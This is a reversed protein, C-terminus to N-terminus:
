WLNIFQKSIATSYRIAWRYSEVFQENSERSNWDKNVEECLTRMETCSLLAEDKNILSEWFDAQEIHYEYAGENGQAEFKESENLHVLMTAVQFQYRTYLLVQGIERSVTKNYM